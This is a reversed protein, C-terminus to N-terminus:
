EEKRKFARDPMVTIVASGNCVVRLVRKFRTLYKYYRICGDEQELIEDPNDVVEQVDEATFKRQQMRIFAHKTYSLKM